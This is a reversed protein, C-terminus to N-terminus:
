QVSGNPAGPRPARRIPGVKWRTFTKLTANGSRWPGGMWETLLQYTAPDPNFAFEYGDPLERVGQRLERLRPGLEGFHRKREAQSMATPNCAFPSDPEGSPSLTVQRSDNPKAPAM